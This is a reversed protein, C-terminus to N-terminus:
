VEKVCDYCHILEYGAPNSKDPSPLGAHAAAIHARAADDGDLKAGCHCCYHGPVRLIKYTLPPRTDLAIRGGGLTMWGEVVAAEVLGTSFRQRPGARLVKIHDLKAAGPAAHDFVRKLYM